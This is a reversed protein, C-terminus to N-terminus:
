GHIPGVISRLIFQESSKTKFCFFRGSKYEVALNNISPFYIVLKLMHEILVRCINTKYNISDCTRGLLCKSTSIVNRIHSNIFFCILRSEFAFYYKLSELFINSEFNEEVKGWKLLFKYHVIQLAKFVRLVDFISFLM